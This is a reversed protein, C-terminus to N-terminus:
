PEYAETLFQTGSPSDMPNEYATLLSGAPIGGVESSKGSPWRVVVRDVSDSRGVGILLTASNQAALGEGARLERLLRRDGLHVTVRAGYGDRNSWEESPKASRNGGVLRVAVFSSPTGVLGREGLRNRHLTLLPANAHVTAVDPFGDRDFDLIAFSRGDGEHDLGAIASLDAFSKGGRNLFFRHREHGSFSAGNM